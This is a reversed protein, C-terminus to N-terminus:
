PKLEYLGSFYGEMRFALSVSDDAPDLATVDSLGDAGPAGGSYLKGNM